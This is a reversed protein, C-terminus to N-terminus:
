YRDRKRLEKWWDVMIPKIWHKLRNSVMICGYMRVVAILPLSCTRKIKGQTKCWKWVGAPGRIHLIINTACQSAEMSNKAQIDIEIIYYRKYNNMCVM